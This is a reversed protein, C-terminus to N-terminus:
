IRKEFQEILQESREISRLVLPKHVIVAVRDFLVEKRAQALTEVMSADLKVDPHFRGTKVEDPRRKLKQRKPNPM